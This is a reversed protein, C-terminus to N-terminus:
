AQLGAEKSHHTHVCVDALRMLCFSCTSRGDQPTFLSLKANSSHAYQALKVLHQGPATSVPPRTSQLSVTNEAKYTSGQAEM